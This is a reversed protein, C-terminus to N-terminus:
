RPKHVGSMKMNHVSLRSCYVQDYWFSKIKKTSKLFTQFSKKEPIIVVYLKM